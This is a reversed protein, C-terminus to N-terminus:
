SVCVGIKFMPVLSYQGREIGDYSGFLRSLQNPLKLSYRVISSM